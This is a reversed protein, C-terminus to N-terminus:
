RMYSARSGAVKMQLRYISTSAAIYLSTWDAGGWNLNGVNELVQIIGLHEAKPSIVWIGGPGTVYVNGLEDCKMGDPIGEAIDGSGINEFFPRSNTITGDPKVDFVRIHARASDNVYLLSSDPSFCLGNPQEFDDALLQLDGGGPPIRYVGQFDLDQERELGFVPMRGYTPDSFYISGDNAVVVDNPANLEKGKYHSAITERKGDPRERVVSSTVHECVILNGEADYTMGNCKNSPKMVEKIGEKQSWHRRTDGPMDSFLLFGGGKNWIPGETFFFGTALRELEGVLDYLNPAKAQLGGILAGAGKKMAEGIERCTAVTAVNTLAYNLGANQWEDNVTSTGDSAVVIQYGADAGHRATHEISMNTWAGTIVLTEVGLGRLLNDLNTSHFANMRMKEVVFDGEKPELGEVPAAGWTGRVMANASKVGQFLPANQKLGPAGEEVIYHVHIVPIGVSRASDALTKVNEIVNQSKAHAPAGSDAFAGGETIVDNQLDQIILATKESFLYRM